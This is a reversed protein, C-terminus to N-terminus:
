TTSLQVSVLLATIIENASISTQIDYTAVKPGPIMIRRVGSFPIERGSEDFNTYRHFM